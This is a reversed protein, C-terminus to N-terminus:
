ENDVVWDLLSIFNYLDEIKNFTTSIEFNDLTLGFKNTIVAWEAEPKRFVENTKGMDSLVASGNDNSVVIFYYNSFDLLKNIKIIEIDSTFETTEYHKKILQIADLYQM